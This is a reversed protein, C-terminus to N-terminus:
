RPSRNNATLVADAVLRGRPGAEDRVKELADLADALARGQEFIREVFPRPDDGGLAKGIDVKLTFLADREAELAAVKAELERNRGNSAAWEAEALKRKLREVEAQAAALKVAAEHREAQAYERMGQEDALEAELANRQAALQIGEVCYRDREERLRGVEAQAAALDAAWKLNTEAHTSRLRGVKEAELLDCREREAELHTIRELAAAEREFLKDASEALLRVCDVVDWGGVVPHYGRPLAAEIKALEELAAAHAEAYAAITTHLTM